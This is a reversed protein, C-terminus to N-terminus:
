DAPQYGAETIAQKIAALEQGTLEANLKLVAQNETHSPVAEAIKPFAELTKKVSAECHPCMMGNIKLTLEQM